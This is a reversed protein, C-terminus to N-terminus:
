RGEKTGRTFTFRFWDSNEAPAPYITSARRISSTTDKCKIAYERKGRIKWWKKPRREFSAIVLACCCKFRPWKKKRAWQWLANWKGVDFNAKLPPKGFSSFARSILWVKVAGKMDRWLLSNFFPQEKRSFFIKRPFLFNRKELFTRIRM